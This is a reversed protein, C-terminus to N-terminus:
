GHFIQVPFLKNHSDCSVRLQLMFKEVAAESRKEHTAIIKRYILQTTYTIM